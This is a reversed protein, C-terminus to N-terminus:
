FHHRKDHVDQWDHQVVRTSQTLHVDLRMSHYHSLHDSRQEFYSVVMLFLVDVLINMNQKKKKEKKKTPVSEKTNKTDHM